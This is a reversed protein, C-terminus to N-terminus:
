LKADANFAGRGDASKSRVGDSALPTTHAEMVPPSLSHFSHRAAIPYAARLGEYDPVPFKSDRTHNPLIDIQNM